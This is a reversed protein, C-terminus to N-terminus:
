PQPVEALTFLEVPARVGRLGHRGLAVLEHGRDAPMADAFASSILLNRDLPSCMAEMRSAENVAPGIVTFDLRTPSGVNGYLVEGLHLALDLVLAPEGNERRQQNLDSVRQFIDLATDLAAVCVNGNRLKNDAAIEFTSLMGDGMFKLVQGGRDEVPEAMCTLYENLMNVLDEREMQDGHATFGRLDGFLIVAHLTDVEGRRVKGALVREGADRGLYAATVARALRRNTATRIALAMSPVTDRLVQVHEDSFGGVRDCAWSFIVGIADDQRQGDIGFSCAKCFYDTAGEKGLDGLIPFKEVQLADGVDCRVEGSNSETAAKLPSREWLGPDTQVYGYTDEKLAAGRSRVLGFGAYQPHKMRTGLYSRLVPLGAEELQVCYGEFLDEATTALLGQEIIWDIISSTVASHV